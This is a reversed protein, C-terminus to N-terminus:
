PILGVKILGQPINPDAKQGEMNITMRKVSQPGIAIYLMVRCGSLFMIMICLMIFLRM